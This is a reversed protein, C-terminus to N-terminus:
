DMVKKVNLAIEKVAIKVTILVILINQILAHEMQKILYINEIVNQVFEMKLIVNLVTNM